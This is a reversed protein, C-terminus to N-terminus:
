LIKSPKGIFTHSACSLFCVVPWILYNPSVLLNPCFKWCCCRWGSRWQPGRHVQALRFFIYQLHIMSLNRFPLIFILLFLILSATQIQFTSRGNEIDMQYTVSHGPLILSRSHWHHSGVIGYSIRLPLLICLVHSSDHSQVSVSGAMRQKWQKTGTVKM